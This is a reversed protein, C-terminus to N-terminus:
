NRRVDTAVWYINTLALVTIVFTEMDTPEFRWSQFFLIFGCLLYFLGLVADSVLKAQIKKLIAIRAAPFIVGLIMMALGVLTLWSM